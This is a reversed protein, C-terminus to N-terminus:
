NVSEIPCAVRKKYVADFSIHKSTLIHESITTTSNTTNIGLAITIYM